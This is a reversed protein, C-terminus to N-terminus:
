DCARVNSTAEEGMELDRALCFVVSSDKGVWNTMLSLHSSNLHFASTMPSIPREEKEEGKGEAEETASRKARSPVVEDVREGKLSVIREASRLVIGGDRRLAPTVDLRCLMLLLFLVPAPGAPRFVNM